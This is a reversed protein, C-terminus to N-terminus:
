AGSEGRCDCPVIGSRGMVQEVYEGTGGCRNCDPDPDGADPITEDSIAREGGDARPEPKSLVPAGAITRAKESCNQCVDDRDRAGDDAFDAPEPSTDWDDQVYGCLAKHDARDPSGLALISERGVDVVHVTDAGDYTALTYEAESEPEATDTM